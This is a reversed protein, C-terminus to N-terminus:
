ELVCCCHDASETMDDACKKVPPLSVEELCSCKWSPDWFSPFSRTVCETGEAVALCSNGLWCLQNTFSIQCDTTTPNQYAHTQKIFVFSALILAIFFTFAKNM